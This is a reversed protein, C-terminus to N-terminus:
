QQGFGSSYNTTTLHRHNLLVLELTVLTLGLWGLLGERSAGDPVSGGIGDVANDPGFM